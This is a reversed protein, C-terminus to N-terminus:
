YGFFFENYFDAIFDCKVIDKGYPALSSSILLVALEVTGVLACYLLNTRIVGVIEM